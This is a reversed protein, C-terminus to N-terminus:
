PFGAPEFIALGSRFDLSVRFERLVDGALIGAVPGSVPAALGAGPDASPDRLVWVSGLRTGAIEVDRIELLPAGTEAEAGELVRWEPHDARWRDFVPAAVRSLARLAPRLDGIEAVTEQTLRAHGDTVLAVALREDGVRIRIVPAGPLREGSPDRPVELAVREHPAHLPLDGEPRLLLRRGPYDLTWTRAHFWSAGLAGDADESGTPRSRIGVRV